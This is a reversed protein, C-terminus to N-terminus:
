SGRGVGAFLEEHGPALHGGPDGAQAKDGGIQARQFEHAPGARGVLVANQGRVPIPDAGDGGHEEQAHHHHGEVVDAFGVGHGAVELKAVACPACCRRRRKRKGEHGHEHAAHVHEGHSFHHLDNEAPIQVEGDDDRRQRHGGIDREAAQAGGDEILNQLEDEDPAARQQHRNEAEDFGAAPGSEFRTERALM